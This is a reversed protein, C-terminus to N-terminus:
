KGCIAQLNHAFQVMQGKGIQDCGQAVYDERNDSGAVIVDLKFHVFQITAQWDRKYLVTSDVVCLCRQSVDIENETTNWLLM